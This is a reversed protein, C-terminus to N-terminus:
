RRDNGKGDEIMERYRREVEIIAARMGEGLYRWPLCHGGKGASRTYRHMKTTSLSQLPLGEYNRVSVEPNRASRITM